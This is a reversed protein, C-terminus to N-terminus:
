SRSITRVKPRSQVYAFCSKLSKLTKRDGFIDMPRGRMRVIQRLDDIGHSHDAHDHTYLVRCRLREHRYGSPKIGFIRLHTM